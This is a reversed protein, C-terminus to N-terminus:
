VSLETRDIRSKLVVSLIFENSLKHWFYHGEKTTSWDFETNIRIPPCLPANHNCYYHNAVSYNIFKKIVNNKALFVCLEASMFNLVEKYIKNYVEIPIRINRNYLCIVKYKKRQKNNKM